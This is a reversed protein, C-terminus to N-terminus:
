AIWEPLGDPIPVSLQRAGGGTVVVLEEAVILGRSEDPREVAMSPELALVMGKRLLVDSRPQISPGETFDLGVGHGMRGYEPAREGLVARMAAHLDRVLVGPRVTRMGMGIADRLLAHDARLSAGAPGVTGNRNLDSWYGDIRAGVDLTLM